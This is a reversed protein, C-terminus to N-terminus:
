PSPRPRSEGRRAECPAQTLTRSCFTGDTPTGSAFGTPTDPVSNGNELTSPDTAGNVAACTTYPSVLPYEGHRYALADVEQGLGLKELCRLACPQIGISAGIERLESAADFLEVHLGPVQSLSIAAQSDSSSDLGRFEGTTGAYGVGLIAIRVPHEQLGRDRASWRPRGHRGETKESSPQPATHTM